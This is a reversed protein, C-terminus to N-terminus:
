PFTLFLRLTSPLSSRLSPVHCGFLTLPLSAPLCYPLSVSVSLSLLSLSFLSLYDSVILVLPLNLLIWPAFLLHPMFCNSVMQPLAFDGEPEELDSDQAETSGFLWSM